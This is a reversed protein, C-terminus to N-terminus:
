PSRLDITSQRSASHIQPDNRAGCWDIGSGRSWAQVHRVKAATLATDLEARALKLFEPGYEQDKVDLFSYIYLNDLKVTSENLESDSFRPITSCGVLVTPRAAWAVLPDTSHLEDNAGEMAISKFEFVAAKRRISRYGGYGERSDNDACPLVVMAWCAWRFAFHHNVEIAVPAPNYRQGGAKKGLRARLESKIPLKHTGDGLAMFSSQFALGDVTGKVRVLGRTKFYQASGPMVVYTWGGKKPSTLLRASFRRDLKDM